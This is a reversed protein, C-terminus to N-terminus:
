VVSKRDRYSSIIRVGSLSNLAKLAAEESLDCAQVLESLYFEAHDTKSRKFGELYVYALVRRVNTDSLQKIIDANEASIVNAGSEKYETDIFAFEDKIVVAGSKNSICGLMEGKKLMKKQYEFQERESRRGPSFRCKSHTFFSKHLEDFVIAPYDDATVTQTNEISDTEFLEQLSVHLASAIMPLLSIDPSTIGNEWKSVAQNSVGVLQGLEEQTMKIDKRIRAINEGINM